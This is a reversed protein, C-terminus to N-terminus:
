EDAAINFVPKMIERILASALRMDQELNSKKEKGPVKQIKKRM